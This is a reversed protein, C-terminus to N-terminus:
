TLHTRERRCTSTGLLSYIPCMGVLSTLLFAIAVIGLVIAMTGSIAGTFYAIAIGVAVATRVIRDVMGMNKM